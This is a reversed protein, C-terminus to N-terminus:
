NVSVTQLYITNVIDGSVKNPNICNNIINDNIVRLTNTYLTYTCYKSSNLGNYNHNTGCKYSKDVKQEQCMYSVYHINSLEPNYWCISTFTYSGENRKHEERYGNICPGIKELNYIDANESSTARKTKRMPLQTQM